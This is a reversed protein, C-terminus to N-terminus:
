SSMRIQIIVEPYTNLLSSKALVLVDENRFAYTAAANFQWRLSKVRTKRAHYHVTPHM